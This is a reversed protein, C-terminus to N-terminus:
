ISYFTEIEFNKYYHHLIEKYNKGRKALHLVGEVCLGRSKELGAGHFTVELLEGNEGMEKELYYFASKLGGSFIEHCILFEGTLEINELRGILELAQVRGTISREKIQIDYLKGLQVNCHASVAAVIKEATAVHEWRYDGHHHIENERHACLKSPMQLDMWRRFQIEGPSLDEIGEPSRVFLSDSPLVATQIDPVGGCNLTYNVSALGNQGYLFQGRTENVAQVISALAFPADEYTPNAYGNPTYELCEFASYRCAREFISNRVVISLAKLAQGPCHTSELHQLASVTHKELGIPQVLAISNNESVIIEFVSNVNVPGHHPSDTLSVHFVHTSQDKRLPTFVVPGEMKYTFQYDGDFIEFVYIADRVKESVIRRHGLNLISWGERRADAESNYVGVRVHYHSKYFYNNSNKHNLSCIRVPLGQRKFSAASKVAEAETETIAVELAYQYQAPEYSEIRIRWPVKGKLRHSDTNGKKEQVSFPGSFVLDFFTNAKCILSRILPEEQIKEACRIM